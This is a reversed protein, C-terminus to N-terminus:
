FGGMCNTLMCTIVGLHHPATSLSVEAKAGQLKGVCLLFPQVSCLFGCLVSGEVAVM